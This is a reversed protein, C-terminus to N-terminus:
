TSRYVLKFRMGPRILESNVQIKVNFNIIDSSDGRENTARQTAFESKKSIDVITGEINTKGDRGIMSVQQQVHYQSLRTEPIKFDVWNDTPDQIAVVPTGLSIMSGEEVYKETIIGDFPARLITEDLSVEVQQLAAKAQLIKKQIAEENAANVENKKLSANAEDLAAQAQRYSEQSVLYKTRYSDFTQVSVAGIQVLKQYREFDAQALDLNAEAQKIQAESDKVTALTTGYEMNTQANAEKKQAELAYINAAAQEKQTELDRKDVRAIIQGKKVVDGEKVLLQVIRGSVKSNIDIEKADARGWVDNQAGQVQKTIGCGCTNVIMAMM